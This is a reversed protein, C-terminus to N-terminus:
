TGGRAELAERRHVSRYIAELEDVEQVITKMPGIGARLRALLAPEGALRRLQAALDAPDGADFLLGNEGHRLLETMSGLKSAVVPTRRSLAEAIVNPNNEYWLSPVVVVDLSRLVQTLEDQGRFVGCLQIRDDGRISRRLRRAYQPHAEADGYIRLVLPADRLLRVAEILIHVGKHRELQGIYGLRLIPSSTKEIAAPTLRSLDYGHLSLHLRAPDFGTALFTSHLFRSPCILADIQDLTQRLFDIRAQVRAIRARQRRWFADMLRPALRGPLRYRRQEEGLCRACAPASIPLASLRGDSRLMTIRPCLFWLDSLTVVSPVGLIRASRLPSASILYGGKLHFVDAGTERMLQNLHEGIWPNNYEWRAPDPAAALNFSLRRVPLGDYVDDQWAVGAPPGTDIREVCVISPAHGRRRLETALRHVHQEAGGTFRPLFHHVAMLIRM